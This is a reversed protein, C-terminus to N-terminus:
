VSWAATLAALFLAGSCLAVVIRDPTREGEMAPGGLILGVLVAGALALWGETTM